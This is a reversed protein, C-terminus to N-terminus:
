PAVRTAQFSRLVWGDGDRRWLQTVHANVTVPEGGASLRVVNTMRGVMLAAGPLPLVTLDAREVSLFIVTNRIHALLEQKNHRFGTSHIHVLEPAFLRSLGDFDRAVLYQRRHIEATLVQEEIVINSPEGGSM